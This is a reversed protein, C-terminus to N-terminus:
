QSRHAQGNGQVQETSSSNILVRAIYLPTVYNLPAGGGSLHRGRGGETGLFQSFMAFISYKISFELFVTSKTAKRDFFCSYCLTMKRFKAIKRGRLRPAGGSAPDAPTPMVGSNVMDSKFDFVLIRFEQGLVKLDPHPFNPSGVRVKGM